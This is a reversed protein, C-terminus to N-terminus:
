YQGLTGGLFTSVCSLTSGQDSSSILVEVVYNFITPTLLGGTNINQKQVSLTGM